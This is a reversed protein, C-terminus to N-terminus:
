RHVMDRIFFGEFFFFFWACVLRLEKEVRHACHLLVSCHVSVVGCAPGAAGM